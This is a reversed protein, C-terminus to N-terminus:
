TSTEAAHARKTKTMGGAEQGRPTMRDGKGSVPRPRERGLASAPRRLVPIGCKGPDFALSPCPRSPGPSLQVEAAGGKSEWICTGSPDAARECGMVVVAVWKAGGAVMVIGKEAMRRGVENRMVPVSGQVDGAMGMEMGTKERCAEQGSVM